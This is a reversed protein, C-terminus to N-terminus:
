VPDPGRDRLKLGCQIEHEFEDFLDDLSEAMTTADDM